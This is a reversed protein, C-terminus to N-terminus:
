LLARTLSPSGCGCVEYRPHYCNLKGSAPRDYWCKSPIPLGVKAKRALPISPMLTRMVAFDPSLLGRRLNKGSLLLKEAVQQTVNDETDVILCHLGDHQVIQATLPHRQGNRFAVTSTM